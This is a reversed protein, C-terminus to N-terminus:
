TSPTSHNQQTQMRIGNWTILPAAISWRRVKVGDVPNRGLRNRSNNVTMLTSTSLAYNDLHCHETDKFFYWIFIHSFKIFNWLYSLSFFYLFFCYSLSLYFYFKIIQRTVNETNNWTLAFERNTLLGTCPSIVLKASTQIQRLSLINRHM